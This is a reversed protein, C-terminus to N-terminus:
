RVGPTMSLEAKPSKAACAGLSLTRPGLNMPFRLSLADSPGFVHSFTLGFPVHAAWCRGHAEHAMRASGRARWPCGDCVRPGGQPRGPAVEPCGQPPGPVHGQPGGPLIYVYGGSGKHTVRSYFSMLPVLTLCILVLRLYLYLYLYVLIM